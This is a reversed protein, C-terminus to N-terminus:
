SRSWFLGTSPPDPKTTECEYAHTEGRQRRRYEEAPDSKTPVLLDWKRSRDQEVVDRGDCRYGESQPRPTLPLHPPRCRGGRNSASQKANTKDERERAKSQEDPIESSALPMHSRHLLVAPIPQPRPQSRIKGVRQRPQERFAGGVATIVLPVVCVIVNVAAVVANDTLSRMGAGTQSGMGGRRM